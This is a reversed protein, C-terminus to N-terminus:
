VIFTTSSLVILSLLMIFRRVHQIKWEEFLINAEEMTLEGRKVQTMIEILKQQGPDMAVGSQVAPRTDSIGYVCPDTFAECCVCICLCM